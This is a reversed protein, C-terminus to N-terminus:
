ATSSKHIRDMELLVDAANKAANEVIDGESCELLLRFLSWTGGKGPLVLDSFEPKQSIAALVSLEEQGANPSCGIIELKGPVIIEPTRAWLWLQPHHDKNADTDSIWWYRYGKTLKEQLNLPLIIERIRDRVEDLFEDVSQEFSRRIAEVVKANEAYLKAADSFKFEDSDSM